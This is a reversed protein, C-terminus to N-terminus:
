HLHPRARVYKTSHSALQLMLQGVLKCLPDVSIQVKVLDEVRGAGDIGFSALVDSVSAATM